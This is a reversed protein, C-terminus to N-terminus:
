ILEDNETAFKALKSNLQTSIRTDQKLNKILTVTLHNIVRIVNEHVALLNEERTSINSM